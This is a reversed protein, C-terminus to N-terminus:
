VFHIAARLSVAEVVDLLADDAVTDAPVTGAQAVDLAKAERVIVTV